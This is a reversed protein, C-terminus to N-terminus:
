RRITLGKLLKEIAAPEVPKVMHQDFGAEQAKRRDEEQGWGTVAVLITERGHPLERIRRCVEYGDLKPLGIDLLVVDPAFETAAEVAELGDHATFVECGLLRLLMALSEASDELDDVVLIRSKIPRDDIRADAPSSPGAATELLPLCIIFESGHGRGASRAQIDGGHMEVLRKVLTLGIGLGGQSRQEGRHAQTFLEFVRPVMDLPIGIGTDKVKVVVEKGQRSASLDIRAGRDSDRASNNLLNSFVQTLRTPDADLFIPEPPLTVILEQGCSGILPRCAEVANQVVAALVVREKRLQVKGRTIRSVDLLDDILRVMQGMQREMMIRAQELVRPDSSLRLIQLANRIPALPNRLEHALTALFEDKRRDAEKLAEEFRLRALFDAVHRANLDLLRQDRESVRHPQRFHVSLMGLITGTRSELPTSQVARFGAAAAIARHPEFSPELQVDEIAISEGSKMARACASDDEERVERFYDLFDQGFGRQAVIELAGTGPNLVQINSFDARSTWIANELVDALATRLDDYTMLRTSLAQLRTMAELDHTLRAESQRLAEEMARRATVDLFAGVSGRVHGEADFLPRAFCLLKRTDGGVRVLDVDLDRVEVGTGAIQMPLEDAPLERGDRYIAYSNPREGILGSLSANQWAPVGLLESTYPNHIIRRCAPDYAIGVGVPVLDLVTQLKDARSRLERNFRVIEEEARKRETLKERLQQLLQEQDQEAQKRQGAEQELQRQQFGSRRRAIHMAEGVAIIIGCSLLYLILGVLKRVGPGLGETRPEVFLLDCAVYGLVTALLAPRYGGFWVIFAVAGYLTAIPLYGGIVPELALRLLVALAICVVAGGYRLLFTRTQLSM